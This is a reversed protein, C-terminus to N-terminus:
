RNQIFISVDPGSRYLCKALLVFCCYRLYSPQTLFVFRLRISGHHYVERFAVVCAAEQPLTEEVDRSLRSISSYEFAPWSRFLAKVTLLETVFCKLASVGLSARSAGTSAMAVVFAGRGDQFTHRASTWVFRVASVASFEVWQLM